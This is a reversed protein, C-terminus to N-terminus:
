KQDINEQIWISYLYKRFLHRYEIRICSFVSWFYSRTQISKVCHLYKEILCLDYRRTGCRGPTVYAVISRKLNFEIGNRKSLETKNEYGQNGFLNTHNNNNLSKFEGETVVM